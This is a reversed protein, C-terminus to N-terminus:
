PTHFVGSIAARKAGTVSPLTNTREALYLAGLFAFVIAEKFDIMEETPLIVDGLFGARIQEILFDNKAGGGTVLVSSCNSEVLVRVIQHAIHRSVTHLLDLPEESSYTSLVRNFVQNLWETGLSKPAPQAYYDL